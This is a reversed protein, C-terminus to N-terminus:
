QTFTQISPSPNGESLLAATANAVVSFRGTSKTPLSSSKPKNGIAILGDPSPRNEPKSGTNTVGASTTFAISSFFGTSTANLQGDSDATAPSLAAAAVSM